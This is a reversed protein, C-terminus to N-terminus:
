SIREHDGRTMGMYWQDYIIGNKLFSQRNIGEDLFGVKLAFNHVGNHSFPIVANVKEIGDINFAYELAKNIAEVAYKKRHKKVICPHFEVKIGQLQYFGLYGILEGGEIARLWFGAEDLGFDEPDDNDQSIQDWMEPDSIFAKVEKSDSVPELKMM